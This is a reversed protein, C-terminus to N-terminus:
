TKPNIKGGLDYFQEDYDNNDPLEDEQEEGLFYDDMLDLFASSDASGLFDVGERSHRNLARALSEAM